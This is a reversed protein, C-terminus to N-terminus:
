RAGLFTAKGLGWTFDNTRIFGDEDFLRGDDSV